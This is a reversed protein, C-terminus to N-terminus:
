WWDDERGPPVDDIGAALRFHCVAASGFTFALVMCGAFGAWRDFSTGRMWFTAVGLLLFSLTLGCWHLTLRTYHPRERLRDILRSM